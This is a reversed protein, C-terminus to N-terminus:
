PRRRDRLWLLVAIAIGSAVGALVGISPEGVIVGIVAGVMVAAAIFFGAARPAPTDNM